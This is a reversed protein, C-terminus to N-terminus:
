KNKFSRFVEVSKITKSFRNRINEQNFFGKFQPLEIIINLKEQYRDKYEEAIYIAKIKNKFDDIPKGEPESFKEIWSKIENLHKEDKTKRYRRHLLNNYRDTEKKYDEETKNTKIGIVFEEREKKHDHNKVGEISFNWCYPEIEFEKKLDEKDFVIVIGNWRAAFDFDRTMSWGKMWKSENYDPDRDKRRKGDLWYRQTTRAELKNKDLAILFNEFDMAHYLPYNVEKIKKQLFEKLDM